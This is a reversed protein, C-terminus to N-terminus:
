ILGTLLNYIYEYSTICGHYCQFGGSRCACCAIATYHDISLGVVDLLVGAFLSVVVGSGEAVLGVGVCGSSVSVSRVGAGSSVVVDSSVSLVSYLMSMRFLKVWVAAIPFPAAKKIIIFARRSFLRFYLNTYGYVTFLEHRSKHCM